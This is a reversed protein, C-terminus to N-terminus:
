QIHICILDRPIFSNSLKKPKIYPIKTCMVWKFLPFHYIEYRKLKLNNTFKAQPLIIMKSKVRNESEGKVGTRVGAEQERVEIM